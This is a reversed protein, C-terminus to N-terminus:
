LGQDPASLENREQIWHLTLNASSYNYAPKPCSLSFPPKCLIEMELSSKCALGFSRSGPKHLQHLSTNNPLSAGQKCLITLDGLTTMSKLQSETNNDRDTCMQCTRLDQVSGAPGQQTCSDCTYPVTGPSWLTRPLNLYERQLSITKLGSTYLASLKVLAWCWNSQWTQQHLNAFAEGHFYCKRIASKSICWDLSACRSNQKSGSVLRKIHKNGPVGTQNKTFIAGIRFSCSLTTKNRQVKLSMVAKLCGM